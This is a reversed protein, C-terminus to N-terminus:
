VGNVFIESSAVTLCEFTVDFDCTRGREMVTGVGGDESPAGLGTGESPADLGTDELLPGFSVGVENSVIGTEFVVIM